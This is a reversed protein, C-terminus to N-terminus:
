GSRGCAKPACPSWPSAAPMSRTPRAARAPPSCAPGPPCSRPFTWSPKATPSWANLPTGASATGARARGLSRDKHKRGAALMAQYGDRDTGFRGQGLTKERANIIEITTSRKHPDVGIIVQAM